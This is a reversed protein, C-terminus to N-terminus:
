TRRLAQRVTKGLTADDVDLQEILWRLSAAKWRNEDHFHEFEGRAIEVEDASIVAWVEDDDDADLPWTLRLKRKGRLAADFDKSTGAYGDLGDHIIAGWLRPALERNLDIDVSEDEDPEEKHEFVKMLRWYTESVRLEFADVTNGATTTGPTPTGGQTTIIPGRSTPVRPRRITIHAAGEDQSM